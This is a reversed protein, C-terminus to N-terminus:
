KLLFGIKFRSLTFSFFNVQTRATMLIHYSKMRQAFESDLNFRAVLDDYYNAPIPLVVGDRERLAEATTFIDKTAFAIHHIGAGAFTSLARATATNSSASVNLSMRFARNRSAVARSRVLGYPDPLEFVEDLELAFVSRYLLIWSNLQGVPLVQTLHDITQLGIDGTECDISDKFSFETAFLRASSEENGVFYLLSGDPLIIGPVDMENPGIRRDFAASAFAEARELTLQEDDTQIGIACVAPGHELFYNKAFSDPESNLVLNIKDQRFLRVDKSVHRGIECFGVMELWGILESEANEDVAFEIFSTGLVEPVPPPSFLEVPLAFELASKKDPNEIILERVQEELFLLSRMGDVATQRTPAARFDDNFIELSIMGRYGSLLVQKLFTAVDFDGQGPFCRFHRSWSLVDMNLLPADALQILFIREGPINAIDTPDDGIALTHFSDLILGLNPHSAKQVINWAQSFTKMHTGWALAEYGIRLNRRAAREALEYLQASALEKDSLAFQSVNSCVLMLPAGLEEMLDFKHEARDLNHRFREDSVGEFDRFPQFLCIEMGLDAAIARVHRPTGNFLLLDNEFIEVADFGAAAVAELKELLTGSLSVTAISRRM